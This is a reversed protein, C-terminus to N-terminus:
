RFTAWQVTRALLMFFNPFGPMAVTEFARPGDRWVEDLCIGDRGTVRMPRMYAHADFGTALVIVDAEHLVGDDTVIGRPELHDIPATVLEVDDRQIARYFGGSIVLRKCMPMYNPTLAKRLQPDRVTRLNAPMPCRGVPTAMRAQGTRDFLVGDPGPIRPLWPPGAVSLSSPHPADAAPLSPQADAHGVARHAPVPDIHSAHRGAALRDASRDLRDRDGRGPPEAARRQPGVARLSVGSGLLRRTRPHRSDEPPAARRDGIDPLRCSIERRGPLCLGAAGDFEASVIETGFRIRDYVGMRKAVDIFYAQIEGGPSFLHSWRPNPAFSFQYFRSPM